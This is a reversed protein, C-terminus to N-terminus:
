GNHAQQAAQAAEPRVGDDTQRREDRGFRFTKVWDSTNNYLKVFSSVCVTM